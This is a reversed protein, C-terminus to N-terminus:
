LKPVSVQLFAEGAKACASFPFPVIKSTKQNPPYVRLGAADAQPCSAVPFNAVDTIRLTSSATAGSALDVPTAAPAGLSSAASGLQQGMLSVASVGPYGTLSCTHKSLNTFRLDFYSSGAAASGAPIYLWIVTTSTACSPPSAPSATAVSAGGLGPVAGLGSALVGVAACAKALTRHPARHVPKV